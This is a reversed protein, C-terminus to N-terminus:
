YEIKLFEEREKVAVDGKSDILGKFLKTDKLNM